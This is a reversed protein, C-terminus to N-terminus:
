KNSVYWMLYIFMALAATSIIITIILAAKDAPKRPTKERPGPRRQSKGKQRRNDRPSTPRAPAASSSSPRTLPIDQDTAIPTQTTPTSAAASAASSGAPMAVPAHQALTNTHQVAKLAESLEDILLDYSDHRFAPERQLMRAVVHRTLDSLNPNVTQIDPADQRLRVLYVEKVTEADFPVRGTLMQFLTCGLSYLDSRFDAPQKTVIEPACYYPTGVGIRNDGDEDFQAVGFDLLRAVGDDDLLINQPKVDRHLLGVGHAARLAKAADLAIELAREEPLPDGARIFDIVSGGTLLEMEIYHQGKHEGITHIRVVNPHNIAALARAEALSEKERQDNGGEGERLIKVAVPRSLITDIARYVIGASGEGIRKTILMPGMKVPVAVDAGCKPCQITSMPKENSVDIEFSCAPCNVEKVKTVDFGM